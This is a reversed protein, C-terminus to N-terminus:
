FQPRPGPTPIPRYGRRLRRAEEERFRNQGANMDKLPETISGGGRSCLGGWIRHLELEGFLNAQLRLLYYRSDSEWRACRGLDFFETKANM